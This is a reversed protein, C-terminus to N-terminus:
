AGRRSKKRREIMRDLSLLSLMLYRPLHYNEIRVAHREFTVKRDCNFIYLPLGRQRLSFKEQVEGYLRTFVERAWPDNRHEVLLLAGILVELQAWLAKVPQFLNRDVDRLNDFVGGYVRDWAVEVHYRFRAAAKDFLADDKRRLAEDMVMWLTEMSHGICCLQDYPAPPRSFDHNLMEWNMRWEPNYHRELIAEVCRNSISELEADPRVRAMQTILRMVIMWVGQIRAGPFGPEDPGFYTVGAQPAYHDQDYAGLREKLIRKAEEWRAMEGTAAAWEVLCEAVFLDGYVEADPGTLAKGERSYKVPRAAGPENPRTRDLFGLTQRAVTLYREDRGFHRYLFTYVWAGRGQYWTVKDGSLRTGDRDANCCFGGLEHDIIHRDMFPLFEDFLERRYSERLKELTMGALSRIPVGARAPAAGEPGALAAPSLASYSLFKRRQM